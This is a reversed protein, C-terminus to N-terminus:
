ISIVIDLSERTVQQGNLYDEIEEDLRNASELFQENRDLDYATEPPSTAIPSPAEMATEKGFRSLTVRRRTRNIRALPTYADPNTSLSRIWGCANRGQPM